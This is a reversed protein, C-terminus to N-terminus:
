ITPTRHPPINFSIDNNSHINKPIMLNDIHCKLRKERIFNTVSISINM